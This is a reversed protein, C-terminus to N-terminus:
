LLPGYVTVTGNSGAIYVKGNAILPSVFKSFSPLSDRTPNMKSNWLEMAVNTADFAHLVRDPTIAWVIGTGPRAGYASVALTGGPYTSTMSTQSSPTTDFQGNSFTYARLNDNRGWVYLTQMGQWYAISHIQFCGDYVLPACVSTAHFQQLPAGLQGLSRPDLVYLVGEKGGGVLLQSDPMLLPGSGSVDLDNTNLDVYNSPTFWDVLTGLPSLKIASDAFDSTGNWSGNGTFAYVYGDGDSVLGRGSQWIAGRSGNFSANFVAAKRLNKTDYGIVWGHYPNPDPGCSGFGAYVIGNALLLGTRQIYRTGNLSVTGNQSDYANGAVTASITKPSGLKIKGTRIDVAFLRHVYTGSGSPGSSPTASVAFLLGRSVDIVPTSLIGLQNVGTGPDPCPGAWGLPVSPGLNVQFLPLKTPSDADFAYITNNLTAIYLVNVYRGDIYLNSVYLPQAFVQADLRQFSGLKGFSAVNVNLTTLIQENLNATTRSNDYQATTVNVSAGFAHPSILLVLGILHTYTYARIM